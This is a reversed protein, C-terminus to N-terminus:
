ASVEMVTITSISRANNASDTDTGSRNIYGTVGDTLSMQMKYTTASTTNPSDLFVCSSTGIHNATVTNTFGINKDIISIVTAGRLLRLGLAENGTKRCGSVRVLVLVKSDTSSPTINLTGNTVDAFTASASTQANTWKTNVVQLVQGAGAQRFPLWGLATGGYVQLADSDALFCTEGEELV